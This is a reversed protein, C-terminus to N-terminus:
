VHPRRDSAGCLIAAGVASLLLGIVNLRESWSHLREFDPGHESGSALLERLPRYVWFYDAQMVVVAAALLLGAALVGRHRAASGALVASAASVVLLAGGTAYYWPFRILALMDKTDADFSPQLQETVSTAVFLLAAGVWMASCLRAPPLFYRSM